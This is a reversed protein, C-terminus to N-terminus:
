KETEPKNKKVYAKKLQELLHPTHQGETQIGSKVNSAFSSSTHKKVNKLQENKNHLEKEIESKRVGNTLSNERAFIRLEKADVHTMAEPTALKRTFIKVAYPMDSKLWLYGKREPFHTISELEQVLEQEKTLMKEKGYSFPKSAIKNDTCHIAPAIIKADRLTSRFVMAWRINQLISNIIDKDRVASTLSQTLLM